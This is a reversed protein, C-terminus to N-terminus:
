EGKKGLVDAIERPAEVVFQEMASLIIDNYPEKRALMAEKEVLFEDRAAITTAELTGIQQTLEAVRATDGSSQAERLQPVLLDFSDIATMTQRVIANLKVVTEKTFPPAKLEDKNIENIAKRADAALQSAADPKDAATAAPEACGASVLLAALLTLAGIKTPNRM